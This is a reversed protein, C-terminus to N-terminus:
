LVIEDVAAVVAGIQDKGFRALKIIVQLITVIFHSIETFSFQVVTTLWSLPLFFVTDVFLEVVANARNDATISSYTTKILGFILKFDLVLGDNEDNGKQYWETDDNIAVRAEEIM